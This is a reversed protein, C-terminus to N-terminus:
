MFYNQVHAPPGNSQGGQAASAPISPPCFILGQVVTRHGGMNVTVGQSLCSVTGPHSPQQGPCSRLKNEDMTLTHADLNMLGWASVHFSIRIGLTQGSLLVNWGWLSLSFTFPVFHVSVTDGSPASDNGMFQM